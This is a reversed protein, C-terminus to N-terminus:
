SCNRWYAMKPHFSVTNTYSLLPFAIPRLCQALGEVKQLLRNYHTWNWGPNGLREVDTTSYLPIMVCAFAYKGNIDEAPPRMYCMFNIASSGGLGKGSFIEYQDSDFIARSNSPQAYRFWHSKTGGAHEQEAQVTTSKSTVLSIRALLVVVYQKITGHNTQTRFTAAM